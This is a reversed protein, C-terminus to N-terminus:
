NTRIISTANYKYKCEIRTKYDWPERSKTKHVIEQKGQLELYSEQSSQM